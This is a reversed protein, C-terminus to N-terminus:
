EGVRRWYIIADEGDVAQPIRGIEQWGLEEYLRRAPNSVFVLNFQVADFGLLPARWISDEVLRRGVGRGRATSAVVYGANAIHSARAAFNPKLYYAGLLDAGRRAGIVASVSRSWTAEFEERTLPPLQPYGDGSAVVESFIMFLQENEGDHLPGVVLMEGAATTVDAQDGPSRRSRRSPESM